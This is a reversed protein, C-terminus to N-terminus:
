GTYFVLRGYWQKAKSWFFFLGFVAREVTIGELDSGLCNQVLAATEKLLINGM